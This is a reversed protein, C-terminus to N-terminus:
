KREENIPQHLVDFGSESGILRLYQTQHKKHGKRYNILPYLLVGGAPVRIHEIIRRIDNPARCNQREQPPPAATALGLRTLGAQFNLLLM